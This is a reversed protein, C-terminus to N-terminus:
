LHIPDRGLPHQRCGCLLLRSAPGFFVQGDQPRPDPERFVLQPPTLLLRRGDLSCRRGPLRRRRSSLLCRAVDGVGAEEVQHLLPQLQLAAELVRRVCRVGDPLAYMVEDLRRDVLVLQRAGIKPRLLRQLLAVGRLPPLELKPTSLRRSGDGERAHRRVFDLVLDLLVISHRRREEELVVHPHPRHGRWRPLDRPVGRLNAAKPRRRPKPLTAIHSGWSHVDRGLGVGEVGAPHPVLVISILALKACRAAEVKLVEGCGSGRGGGGRRGGGEGWPM